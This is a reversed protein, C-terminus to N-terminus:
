YLLLFQCFSAIRENKRILTTATRLSAQGSSLKHRDTLYLSRDRRFALRAGIDAGSPLQTAGRRAWEPLRPRKPEIQVLM